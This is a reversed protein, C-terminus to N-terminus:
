WQNIINKSQIIEYFDLDSCNLDLPISDILNEFNCKQKTLGEVFREIYENLNDHFNDEMKPINKVSSLKQFAGHGFVKRWISM